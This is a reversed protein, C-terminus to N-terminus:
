KVLNTRSKIFFPLAKKTAFWDGFNLLAFSDALIQTKDGETIGDGIVILTSIAKVALSYMKEHEIFVKDEGGGEGKKYELISAILFHLLHQSSDTQDLEKFIIAKTINEKTSSNDELFVQGLFTIDVQFTKEM